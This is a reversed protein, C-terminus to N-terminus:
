QHVIRDDRQVAAAAAGSATERKRRDFPELLRYHRVETYGPATLPAEKFTTDVHLLGRGRLGSLGAGLSDASVGYWKAGWDIPLEFRPRLSLAILLVAKEVLSLTRYWHDPGTWYAEPLQLYPDRNGNAGPRAYDTGTGAENLLTITTLRGSRGTTILNRDRLRRLVKSVQAGRHRTDPLGLARGWVASPKTTTYGGAEPSSIIAAIALYLDLGTEDGNRVFTSLPGGTADVGAARRKQVFASRLPTRARKSKEILAAVTDDRTPISPTQM